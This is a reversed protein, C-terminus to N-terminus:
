SASMKGAQPVPLLIYRTKCWFTHSKISPALQLRSNDSTTGALCIFISSVSSSMVDAYDFSAHLKPTDGSVMLIHM